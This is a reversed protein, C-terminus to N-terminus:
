GMAHAINWVELIDGASIKYGLNRLTAAIQVANISDLGLQFITTHLFVTESDVGSFKCLIERLAEEQYSWPHSVDSATSSFQSIETFLKKEFLHPLEAGLLRKDSAQAAPYQLTHEVLDLFSTTLKEAVDATLQSTHFHLCIRFVDHQEDPVAECILPFGMNGEDELVEWYQSDLETGSGQLVVLTDFLQTGGPAVRRQIRRLPSLQHPLIDSNHKQALKLIDANTSTGSLKIRIPLTNFCPGVIRDAGELSVTRCSFVNGFCIDSTDAHLALLRAWAAHLVNLPTVSLEKCHRKFSTLSEKLNVHIQRSASQAISIQDKPSSMLTPSVGSMYREWFKDSTDSGTSVMHEIFRHFPVVDPLQQGALSTQIEHLLQAIGEGDYLAHHISLLLYTHDTALDNFITLSYPLQGNIPSQSEFESKRKEIASKLDRAIDASSWPLSASELVVQAYAFQKDNTQRFCTRLIDHREQMQIWANQLVEAKVNVRLLLHNFYASHVDSEAALMAEQLPTCPYIGHITRNEAKLEDKVGNVFAEDFAVKAEQLIPPQSHGNAFVPVVAALQAVSSYRLITSVAFRGLGCNQLQRSFSIASLSDLGLKYFSTHPRITQPDTGTVTSLANAIIREVDTLEEHDDTNGELSFSKLKAPGMNEIEQQIRAHDVTNSATLPLEDVPVLLAPMLSSSLSESLEHLLDKTVSDINEKANGSPVWITAVQQQGSIPNRLVMSVSDSVLALSILASDIDGLTLHQGNLRAWGQKPLFLMTGDALLRGYDGTRYLRGLQPHDFRQGEAM